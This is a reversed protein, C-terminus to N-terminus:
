NRRKRVVFIVALVSIVALVCEFGPSKLTKTVSIADGSGVSLDSIDDVYKEKSIKLIYRGAKLHISTDTIGMPNDNIYITAGTPTSSILVVGDPPIYTWPTTVVVTTGANVTVTKTYTGYGVMSVSLTHDGPTIEYFDYPTTKGTTAGDLTISAGVPNSRVSIIGTGTLLPQLTVDVTSPQGSPVSIESYYGYYGLKTIAISHSGPLISTFTAPTTGVQVGDIFLDAGAPYSTVTLGSGQQATVTFGRQLTASQGDPKTVVVNWEGTDKGTLDFNCTIKQPNVVTIGTATIALSGARTLKVSVIAPFGSGSLDSIGIPGSNPATFPAIGTVAFNATVPKAISKLPFQDINNSAVTYQADCIGDNNTDRCTQSFGTGVPTEWLNGGLYPGGSIATGTTKETNWTNADTSVYPPNVNNTNNFYNDVFQNNKVPSTTMDIGLGGVSTVTNHSFKSNELEMLYLGRSNNAVQNNIVTNGRGYYICIGYTNDTVINGTITNDLDGSYLLIGNQNHAAHNGSVTSQEMRQTYIGAYVNNNATNSDITLQQSQYFTAGAYDNNNFISNLISIGNSYDVYIGNGNENLENNKVTVNSSSSIHVGYRSNHSGKVDELTGGKVRSLSIGSQWERLVVNKIVVNSMTDGAPNLLIGTSDVSKMGDIIHGNGDLTVDSATIKICTPEQSNLIDNQLVYYGPATITTPGTLPITAAQVGCIFALCIAAIVLVKVRTNVCGNALM